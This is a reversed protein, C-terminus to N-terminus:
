ECVDTLFVDKKGATLDPETPMDDVVGVVESGTEALQVEQLM